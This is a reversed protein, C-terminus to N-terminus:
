GGWGRGIGGGLGVRDLDGDVLVVELDVDVSGGAGAALRDVGGVRGHADGVQGGADHDGHLVLLRLDLVTLLGHTHQPGPQQLPGDGLLLGLQGGLAAGLDARQVAGVPDPGVVEGLVPDGVV